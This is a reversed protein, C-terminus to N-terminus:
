KFVKLIITDANIRGTTTAPKTKVSEYVKRAKMKTTLADLVEQAKRLTKKSSKELDVNQITTGKVRFGNIKDDTVLYSLTRYKTNFLWVESAGLIRVPAMSAIKYTDDREKFNVASVQRDATMVKKKTTRRRKRTVKKVGMYREAEDVIAEIFNLYKNRRRVPLSEYAENLDADSKAKVTRLEDRLPTYFDVVAKATNYPMTDKTLADYVSYVHKANGFFKDIEGEVTALFEATNEKVLEAPSKRPVVPAKVAENVVTTLATDIRDDIFAIDAESLTAGNNAMQCLGAVTMSLRWLQVRRIKAVDKPRNAKAWKIIWANGKKLDYFYAYHRLTDRKATAYDKVNSWDVTEQSVHKAEVEKSTRARVKPKRKPM